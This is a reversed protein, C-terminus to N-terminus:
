KAAIDFTQEGLEEGGIGRTAKLVVPTTDDSLTYAIANSVTGDKKIQKDQTDLYQDDPLMAVDLTNVMNPDNDQVATFMAIWANIPTVDENGTLNTTDYWFALVPADGYENGKEGVPIVKWDTINIKVDTAVLENDKFYYEPTATDGAATDEGTTDTQAQTTSETTSSAANNSGGCATLSMAMFCAFVMALMRKKM